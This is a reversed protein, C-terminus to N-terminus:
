FRRLSPLWDPELLRVFKSLLALNEVNTPKFDLLKPSYLLYAAWKARSIAVNLRNPMLLFEIGRPVDAASSATMSVIAVAAEKGQFKDVTGVPIQQLGASNLKRRILQVQANYPAVVIINDEADRLKGGFDGDKWGRSLLGQVIEVIKEAEDISEISNGSHNVVTPHLGQKVGELSRDKALSGLKSDYFNDSVVSCVGENMRWSAPLFFGFQPSMVKEGEALWNLASVDIDEPHVGQTVQPLQQPDGLLLLRSASRSAAITNALSFQGAEDIVLLDLSERPVRKANAFDYVTGGIVYGSKGATFEAYADKGIPTWSTNNKGDVGGVLQGSRIGKGILEPPLGARAVSRLLNEITEHAQSIVGVRWGHVSVLESIVKGGNFSKGSGPPGQVALAGVEIELLSEVIAKSAHPAGVAARPQSFSSRRRLIDLASNPKLNPYNALVQAGLERIAEEINHTMPPRGPTVAEPRYNHTLGTPGVREEVIFTNEDLIELVKCYDVAVRVGPKSDRALERASDSYVLFVETNKGLRSGPGPTAYVKLHRRAKKQQGEIHWDRVVEISDVIFVDRTDQWEEIPSVLRDFHAWWFSKNERRHFEVAAATLAVATEDPSRTDKSRAAVLDM